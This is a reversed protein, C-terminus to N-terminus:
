LSISCALDLRQAHGEFKRSSILRGAPLGDLATSSLLCAAKLSSHKSKIAQRGYRSHAIYIFSILGQELGVCIFILSRQAWDFQGCIENLADPAAIAAFRLPGTSFCYDEWRLGLRRYVVILENDSLNV